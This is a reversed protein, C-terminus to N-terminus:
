ALLLNVSVLLTRGAEPPSRGKRPGAAGQAGGGVIGAPQIVISGAPEDTDAGNTTTSGPTPSRTRATPTTACTCSRARACRSSRSCSATSSCAPSNRAPTTASASCPTTPTPWCSSRTWMLRSTARPACGPSCRSEAIADIDDRRLADIWDLVLQLNAQAQEHNM